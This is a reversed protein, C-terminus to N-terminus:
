ANTETQNKTIKMFEKVIQEIGPARYIYRHRLSFSKDWSFLEVDQKGGKQTSEVLKKGLEFPVVPDDEAHLVMVPCHVELLHQETQFEIDALELEKPLDVWWLLMNTLWALKFNQVEELMSNFPSELVLGRVWEPQEESLARSSVATGLSHGWVIVHPVEKRPNGIKQEVFNLVTKADAVVSTETLEVETSDGYSRYDFTLVHCGIKQIIEYLHVRHSFGRDFSNGHVYIVLCDALSLNSLLVRGSEPGLLWAGLYETGNSDEIPIYFNEARLLGFKEPNKLDDRSRFVYSRVLPLFVANKLLYTLSSSSPEESDSEGKVSSGM